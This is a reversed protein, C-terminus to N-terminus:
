RRNGPAAGRDTPVRGSVSQQPLRYLATAGLIFLAGDRTTTLDVIEEPMRVVITGAFRGTDEYVLVADKLAIFLRADDGSVARVGDARGDALTRVFTGFHDYVIVRSAGRDAVYLLSEEGVWLSVPDGLVGPGADVDGIVRTLRRNENWKLVARRDADVAFIENTGSSAVAIPVGTSLDRTERDGRRYTIGSLTGEDSRTLPIAGLFALAKSFLQIRRNGADAVLLILGNTPDVDTPEDFAGERSGPGGIVAISAGTTDFKVVAHRGADAVYLAGFPDAGVARADEFGIHPVRVATVTDVPQAGSIPSVATWLVLLAFCCRM